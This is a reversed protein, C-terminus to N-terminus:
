VDEKADLTYKYCVRVFVCLEALVERSEIRRKVAGGLAHM